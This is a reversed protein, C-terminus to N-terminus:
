TQTPLLLVTPPSKPRLLPWSQYMGLEYQLATKTGLTRQIHVLGDGLHFDAGWLCM